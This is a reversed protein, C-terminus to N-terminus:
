TSRRELLEGNEDLWENRLITVTKPANIAFRVGGHSHKELSIQIRIDTGDVFLTISEGFRRSLMLSGFPVKRPGPDGSHSKSFSM